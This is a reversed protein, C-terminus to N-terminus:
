PVGAGGGWFFSIYEYSFGAEEVLLRVKEAVVVCCVFM